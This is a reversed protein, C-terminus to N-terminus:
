STSPIRLFADIAIAGDALVCLPNVDLELLLGKEGACLKRNGRDNRYYRSGCRLRERREVRGATLPM